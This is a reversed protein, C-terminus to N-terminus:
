RGSLGYKESIKLGEIKREGNKIAQKVKAEDLMMYEAPVKSIDEVEYGWVKRMGSVPAIAAMKETAEAQVAAVGAVSRKKKAAKEADEKIKQAAENAKRLEEQKFALLADSVAKIQSDLDAFFAREADIAIKKTNDLAATKEKRKDEGIKRIKKAVQLVGNASAAELESTIAGLKQLGATTEKVEKTLNEKFMESQMKKIIEAPNLLTEAKTLNSM